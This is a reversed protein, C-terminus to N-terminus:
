APRGRRAQAAGQGSEEGFSFQFASDSARSGFRRTTAAEPRRGAIDSLLFAVRSGVRVADFFDGGTREFYYQAHLDLGDVQGLEARMPERGQATAENKAGAM